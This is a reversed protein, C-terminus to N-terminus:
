IGSSSASFIAVTPSAILYMSSCLFYVDGVAVAATVSPPFLRLPSPPLFLRRRCGSLSHPQSESVQAASRRHRFPVAGPPVRFCSRRRSEAPVLDGSIIDPRVKASSPCCLRSPWRGQESLFACPLRIAGRRIRMPGSRITGPGQQPKAVTEAAPRCDGM